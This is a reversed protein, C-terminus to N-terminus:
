LMKLLENLAVHLEKYGSDESFHGAKPIIIIKSGLEREFTKSDSLPIYPDNDSFISVFRKSHKKARGLDIKTKLWPRIIESQLGDFVGKRVNVFGAVLLAGGIRAEGSIGSLYRLIAQCGMSHGVLYTDGEPTGIQEKLYEVWEDIKPALSNPMEPVHVEFGKRELQAQLWGYWDSNPAGEWKHVIFVRKM